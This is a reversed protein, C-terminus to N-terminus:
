GTRRGTTEIQQEDRGPEQSLFAAVHCSACWLLNLNQALTEGLEIPLVYSM